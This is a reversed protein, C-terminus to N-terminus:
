VNFLWFIFCLDLLVGVLGWYCSMLGALVCVRGSTCGVSDIHGTEVAEIDQGSLKTVAENVQHALGKGLKHSISLCMERLM